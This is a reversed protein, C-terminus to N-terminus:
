RRGLRGAIGRHRKEYKGLCSDLIAIAEEASHVEIVEDESWDCRKRNDLKRGALDGSWGEVELAVIPRKLAWAFAIESLTGAGGGIAIVADSNAIIMNRAMDMGTAIVVDGTGRADSPDFTPLIAVLDGERYRPSSRAGEAAGKAIDGMGGHVIRYDRDILACGLSIAIKMKTGDDNFAIDGILAIMKRM